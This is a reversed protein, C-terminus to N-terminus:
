WLSRMRSGQYIIMNNDEDARRGVKCNTLRLAEMKNGNDLIHTPYCYGGHSCFSTDGTDKDVRFQTIADDYDGRKIISTPQEIAPVDRLAIAKCIDAAHSGTVGAAILLFSAWLILKM